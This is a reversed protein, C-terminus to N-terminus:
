FMAYVFVVLGSDLADPRAQSLLGGFFKYVGPSEPFCYHFAGVYALLQTHVFSM